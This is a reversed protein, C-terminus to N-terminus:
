RRRASPRVGRSTSADIDSVYGRVSATVPKGEPDTVRPRDASVLAGCAVVAVVVFAIERRM